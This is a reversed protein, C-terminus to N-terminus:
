SWSVVHGATAEWPTALGTAPGWSTPDDESDDQDAPAVPEWNGTATITVSEATLSVTGTSVEIAIEPIILELVAGRLVLTGSNIDQIVFSTNISVTPQGGVLSLTGVSVERNTLDLDGGLISLLGSTMDAVIRTGGITPTGGTLTLTGVLPDVRNPQKPQILYIHGVRGLWPRQFSESYRAAHLRKRHANRLLLVLRLSADNVQPQLGNIDLQGTGPSILVGHLVLGPQGGLISLQGADVAINEDLRLFVTARRMKRLVPTRLYGVGQMYWRRRERYFAFNPRTSGVVTPQGGVITLTATAPQIGPVIYFIQRLSYLRYPERYAGGEARRHIRRPAFLYASQTSM